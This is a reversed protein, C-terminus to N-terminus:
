AKASSIKIKIKLGSPSPLLSPKVAWPTIGKFIKVAPFDSPALILYTLFRLEFGCESMTAMAVHSIHTPASDYHLLVIHTLKGINENLQKL